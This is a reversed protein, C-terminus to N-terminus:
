GNRDEIRLFHAPSYQGEVDIRAFQQRTYNGGAFLPLGVQDVGPALQELVRMLLEREIRFVQGLDMREQNFFQDCLIRGFHVGGALQLSHISRVM